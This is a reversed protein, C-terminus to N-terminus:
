SLWELQSTFFQSGSTMTLGVLTGNLYAIDIIPNVQSHVKRVTWDRGDTSTLVYEPYDPSTAIFLGAKYFVKNLNGLDPTGPIMTWHLGDPSVMIVSLEGVAAFM